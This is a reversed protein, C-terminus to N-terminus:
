RAVVQLETAKMAVWVAGGDALRLAAVAAPTVEAVLALDGGLRVRVRDPTPELGEVVACWINRPSGEPRTRFLSVARPHVTVSVPGELPTVVALQVGGLDVVGGRCNGTFCNLGVFDAVYPSRPAAVLDAATGCQVVRGGELVAIRDALALADELQHAVVVRPGEFEFLRTRLLRRLATRGSADVAALPEDLLLLSPAAALARALAVRQAQGGSLVAPRQTFCEDSLGVRALWERALTRAMRRPRGQCRPGFAVNDVVTLHPWLLPDQFVVGVGRAEPPVWVGRPGGDLVRGALEVRGRELPLLGALVQLMSSKGAGNPGVLCLTEGPEVQLAACLHLNGRRLEIDAHLSM